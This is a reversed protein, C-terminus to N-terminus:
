TVDLSAVAEPVRFSPPVTFSEVIGTLQTSTSSPGVAGDGMGRKAFGEWILGVDEPGLAAAATLIADRAQLFTPNIPTLKLGGIVYRLMRREAEAHQHKAVLKVFVEWLACCWIEGANHFENNPGGANRNRPPGVPLVVNASIHKFTLPNKNMNASYPHRRISFYYNDKFTPTLDTWGGVAFVGSAFNDGPQSTMCIAFFDGWGEGMARGQRNMLGSANGVLRNTIYHGMEHFTILAEHNSTRSPLPNPGNFLFMQMVPSAGDAPTSMNANDTGSFDNGEALIPDGDLGGLGFNDEQANGSAEDFGAEYWRDHLWNVHFFMGVISAQLNSPDTAPKSHDYQTDFTGPATVQGLVDGPGFGDPPSLDAYAICNNGKTTTAGDPLWPRGPLLSEIEILKEPIPTAQFGDPEGTSHPSGPAPGDEPRFLPAVGTNHVRYKFTAGSTLNKRYLVDPTDVADVVYSFAPYGEIWLEIYYGPVFHGDGM